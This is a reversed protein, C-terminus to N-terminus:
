SEFQESIESIAKGLKEQERIEAKEAKQWAAMDIRKLIAKELRSVIETMDIADV